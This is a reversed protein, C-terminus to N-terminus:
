HPLVRAPSGIVTEGPAVDKVVVAGAGVVAGDGITLGQRVVAGAGIHVAEGIRVAGCVVAGTAVHSHAGIWTDHDVIAGSNVIVNEALHVRTQLIAGAMVQAGAGIVCRLSVAVRPHVLSPFAFGHGSLSEYISRRRGIAGVSGIGNFLRVTAPDHAELWRDDGLWPLRPDDVDPRGPAVCGEVPLHCEELAEAVVAAHGGAGLIIRRITM